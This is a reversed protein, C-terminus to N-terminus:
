PKKHDKKTNNGLGLVVNWLTWYNTNEGKRHLLVFFTDPKIYGGLAIEYVKEGKRLLTIAGINRLETLLSNIKAENVKENEKYELLLKLDAPNTFGIADQLVTRSETPFYNFRLQDTAEADQLFLFVCSLVIVICCLLKKM